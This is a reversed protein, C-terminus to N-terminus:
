PNGKAREELQKLGLQVALRLVDTRTARALAFPDENAQMAVREARDLLDQPLRMSMGETNASQKRPM